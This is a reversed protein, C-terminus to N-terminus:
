SGFDMRFALEIATQPVSEHFCVFLERNGPYRRGIVWYSHAPPVKKTDPAVSPKYQFLTGQEQVHKFTNDEGFRHKCTTEPNMNSRQFKERLQLCSTSFNHLVQAHLAGQSMSMEQSTPCVYVGEMGDFNLYHFLVNDVGKTVKIPYVSKNEDSVTTLSQNMSVMDFVSGAKSLTKSTNGRSVGASSGSGGSDNSGYSLKSGQRRMVPTSTESGTYATGKGHSIRDVEQEDHSYFYTRNTVYYSGLPWSSDPAARATVAPSKPSGQSKSPTTDERKPKTGLMLADASALSPGSKESSLRNECCEAMAVDDTELQLLTAKAQSIYFPDPRPNGDITRACGGTELLTGLLFSNIGVILLFWRGSPENYGVPSAQSPRCLRSPFVERWVVLEEVNQKSVLHLLCHYKLFLHVDRLDEAAMHNSLLYEKYFLCTGLITFTRRDFPLDEELDDFDAAEFESLIEDCLVKNEQSLELSKTGPVSGCLAKYSPSSTNNFSDSGFIKNLTLSFLQDLHSKHRPKRFARSTSSFLLDMVQQLESKICHLYQLPVRNAPMAIVLLDKGYRSYVTHIYQGKYLLTSTQVATGTVEPLVGCLTLFLGRIETAINDDRPFMYLIDDRHNESESGTDELTLYMFSCLCSQFKSSLVGTTTGTVLQVIDEGEQRPPVKPPLSHIYTPLPVPPPTQPGIVVPVQFTVKVKKNSISNFTKDLNVWSVEMDNIGLMMDGRHIQRCKEAASGPVVAQVIVKRDKVVNNNNNIRTKDNYQCLKIGFMKECMKIGSMQGNKCNKYNPSLYVHKIKDGHEQNNVDQKTNHYKNNIQPSSTWSNYGNRDLEVYEDDFDQSIYKSQNKHYGNSGFSSGNTQVHGNVKPRQAGTDTHLGNQRGKYFNNKPPEGLRSSFTQNSDDSHDLSGNSHHFSGSSPHPPQQVHGNGHSGNVDVYFLDGQQRVHSTWSEQVKSRSLISRIGDFDDLSSRKRYRSIPTKLGFMSRRFPTRNPAM